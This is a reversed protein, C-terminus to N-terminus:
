PDTHPFNQTVAVACGCVARWSLKVRSCALLVNVFIMMLFLKNPNASRKATRCGEFSGKRGDNKRPWLVEGNHAVNGVRRSFPRPIKLRTLDKMNRKSFETIPRYAVHRHHRFTM